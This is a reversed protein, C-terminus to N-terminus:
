RSFISNDSNINVSV